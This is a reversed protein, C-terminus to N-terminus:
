RLGPQLAAGELSQPLTAILQNKASELAVISASFLAGRHQLVRPLAELQPTAADMARAVPVQWAEALSPGSM